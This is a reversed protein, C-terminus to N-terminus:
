PRLYRGDSRQRFVDSTKSDVRWRGISRGTCRDSAQLNYGANRYGLNTISLCESSVGYDARSSIFSRLVGAAEAGSIEGEPRTDTTRSPESTRAVPVPQPVPAPVPTRTVAPAPVPPRRVPPRPATVPPPESDDFHTTTNSIETVTATPASRETVVDMPQSKPRDPEGSFPLGSLVAWALLGLGIV